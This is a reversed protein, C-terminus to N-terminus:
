AKAGNLGGMEGGDKVAPWPANVACHVTDAVPKGIPPQKEDKGEFRDVSWCNATETARFSRKELLQRVCQNRTYEVEGQRQKWANRPTDPPVTSTSFAAGRAGADWRYVATTNEAACHGM